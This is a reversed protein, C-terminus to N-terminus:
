LIVKTVKNGAKRIYFGGTHPAAVRRGNIDYYVAGQQASEVTEIVNSPDDPNEEPNLSVYFNPDDGNDKITKSMNKDGKKKYARVYDFQTKYEYSKDPKSAWSGDGVSQNLIVYFDKYFPWSEKESYNADSFHKNAYTFHHVGDVYFRLEEEDWELAYVHWQTADSNYAHTKAPSAQTPQGKTKNGWASHITSHAQNAANIQEWVDIEGSNPWGGEANTAPMLWFAPFNGAHPNTKVRAEIKGYHFTFKGATYIAGSIMETDKDSGTTMDAPTQICYANYCGDEFRNVLKKGETSQAIFRNWTSGYRPHNSWRKSDMKESNFEDGWVKTWESDEQEEFLVYVIIDSDIIDGPITAIGDAGIAVETDELNEGEGHRVIIKDGSFGPVTPTVKLALDYGCLTVEKVPGGASNLVLCNLPELRVAVQRVEKAINLNFDVIAGGYAQIGESDEGPVSGAPDINNWDLKFRARYTGAPLGEPIFFAPLPVVNGNESTSGGSGINNYNSFAILESGSVAKGDPAIQNEFNGNGNRDIYLYTNLWQDSTWNMDLNYQEGHIATLTMDTKDHYILNDVDQGVPIVQAGTMDSSLTLSILHRDPKETHTSQADADFNLPYNGKEAAPADAAIRLTADAIAGGNTVIDNDAVTSGKPDNSDWDVIYRMRYDGAKLDPVVFAPLNGAHGSTAPASSGVISGASDHGNLYTASVLESPVFEGDGDLDIYLYGCMWKGSWDMSPKVVAGPEATFVATASLDHYLLKDSAQNVSASQEDLLISNLSRSKTIKTDYPYNIEYAAMSPFALGAAAALLLLKKTM